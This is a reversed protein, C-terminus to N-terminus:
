VVVLWFEIKQIVSNEGGIRGNSSGHLFTPTQKLHFAPVQLHCAEGRHSGVHTVGGAMGEENESAM